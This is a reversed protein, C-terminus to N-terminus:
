IARGVSTYIGSEYQALCSIMPLEFLDLQPRTSIYDLVLMAILREAIYGLDRGEVEIGKSRFEAEVSEMVDFLSEMINSFVSSKMIFMTCYPTWFNNEMEQNIISFRGGRKILISSLIDWHDRKHTERFFSAVSKGTMLRQTSVIGGDTYFQVKKVISESVSDMADILRAFDKVGFNVYINPHRSLSRKIVEGEPFVERLEPTDFYFFRRYHQFGVVDYDNLHNKWVSYHARLEGYSESRFGSSELNIGKNDGFFGPPPNGSCGVMFPTFPYQQLTRMGEKHHVTFIGIRM